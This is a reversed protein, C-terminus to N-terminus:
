IGPARCEDEDAALQEALQEVVADTTLFSSYDVRIVRTTRSIDCVFEEYAAHLSTLYELTIGTEVERDRLRIRRLSEEPSVDLYVIVDPKAMFRSMAELLSTYTEHERAEMMGSDLLMKAFVADEYITRDQVGGREDWLIQQQQRFRKDLLYVQLPFSWRKMDQYFDSLYANDAVPEYHVPLSLREGLAAALTTKGAGIMGCLSIYRGHLGFNAVAPAAMQPRQPQQRGRAYQTQPGVTALLLPSIGRVSSSSFCIAAGVGPLAIRAGALRVLSVLVLIPQWM